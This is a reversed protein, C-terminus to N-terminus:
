HNSSIPSIATLTRDFSVGIRKLGFALARDDDSGDFERPSVPKAHFLRVCVVNYVPLQEKPIYFGTKSQTLDVEGYGLGNIFVATCTNDGYYRGKMTIIPGKDHAEIQEALVRFRILSEAGNSWVGWQNQKCWGRELEVRASIDSNWANFQLFPIELAQRITAGLAEARQEIETIAGERWCARSSPFDAQQPNLFHQRTKQNSRHYHKRIAEVSQRSLFHKTTTGYFQIHSQLLGVRDRLTKATLKSQRWREILLASEVDLSLNVRPDVSTDVYEVGLKDLFDRVVNGQLLTDRSFVTAILAEDGIYRGWRKLMRYYDRTPNRRAAVSYIRQQLSSPAEVAFLPHRNRNTKIQQLIGSQLLDAQDRLYVILRIDHSELASLLHKINSRRYLRMGEWSIVASNFGEREATALEAQLAGLNEDSLKFLLDHHGNKFGFGTLPVYLSQSLLYERHKHLCYQIATSGTKDTGIHLFVKM